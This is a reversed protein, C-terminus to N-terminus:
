QMNSLVWPDRIARVREPTHRLAVSTTDVRLARVNIHADCGGQPSCDIMKSRPTCDFFTKVAGNGRLSTSCHAKRLLVSTLVAQCKPYQKQKLPKRAGCHLCVPRVRSVGCYWWEICVRVCSNHVLFLQLISNETTYRPTAM